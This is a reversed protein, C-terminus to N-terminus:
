YINLASKQKKKKAFLFACDQCTFKYHRQLSLDNVHIIIIIWFIGILIDNWYM